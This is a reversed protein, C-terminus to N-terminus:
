RDVTQSAGRRFSHSLLRERHLWLAQNLNTELDFM